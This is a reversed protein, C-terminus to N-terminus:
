QASSGESIGGNFKDVENGYQDFGDRKERSFMDIRGSNTVRRVLDYFEDPKRSHQRRKGEFWTGFKKTSRFKPTGKRAYIVFESDYQPLGVPQFGGPKCWTMTCVYKFGWDLIIPFTAPLHKQTTWCFLHCDRHAPLKLESIVGYSLSHYDFGDQNPRLTRKIKETQWPPDIVICSYIGKPMEPLEPGLGLRERIVTVLGRRSRRWERFELECKGNLAHALLRFDARDQPHPVPNNSSDDHHNKSYQNSGDGGNRPSGLLQGIRAEIRRQAALMPHQLEPSRLLIEIARAKIRWDDLESINHFEHINAAVDMEIELIQKASIPGDAKPLHPLINNSVLVLGGM